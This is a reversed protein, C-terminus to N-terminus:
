QPARFFLSAAYSYKGGSSEGFLTLHESVSLSAFLVNQQPCVGAGCATCPTLLAGLPLHVTPCHVTHPTQCVGIAHRIRAMDTRISHGSVWADGSSPPLLGTLMSLCTTKGAGAGCVTSPTPLAM